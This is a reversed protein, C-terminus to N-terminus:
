FLTEPSTYKVVVKIMIYWFSKHADYSCIAHLLFISKSLIQDLILIALFLRLNRIQKCEKQLYLCM